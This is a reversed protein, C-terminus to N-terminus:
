NVRSFIMKNISMIREKETNWTTKKWNKFIALLMELIVILASEAKEYKM